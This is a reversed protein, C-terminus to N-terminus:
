HHPMKDDFSILFFDAINFWEHGLEQVFGVEDHCKMSFQEGENVNLTILLHNLYPFKGVQSM